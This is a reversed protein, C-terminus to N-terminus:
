SKRGAWKVRREVRRRVPLWINITTGKGAQSEAEIRGNHRQIIDYTIALGLGTGGEKTTVFPDFIYPLIHPNISTGTDSIKLYVEGNKPHYSTQVSLLGGDPMAEVANLCINLIVQKIQDRIMPISPLNEDPLFEFNIKNHRLHTNLLTQVELVLVNISGPKFDENVVPRYIERLRAILNTMRETEALMTRMDEQAQPSLSEEMKVLYLANQIAQLPNNLEHAVSAVIRGLAALKESQVLQARVSKEHELSAQLDAYIQAKEIAVAIQDAVTAMLQVDHDSFSDPFSNRIDLVGLCHNGTKLPIALESFTKPLQPDRVYNGALSVNRVVSAQFTKAVGGIIGEGSHYRQEGVQHTGESLDSGQSRVLDDTEPDVLFVQVHYYGFQEKLLLVVQRLMLDLDLSGFIDQSIRYLINVEQLSKQLTAFLKANQLALAAQNALAELRKMHDLNYFQPEFKSISFIAIVQDYAIVPVGIWSRTKVKGIFDLQTLNTLASQILLPKGTEIIESFEPIRAIDIQNNEYKEIAGVIEQSRVISAHGDNVLLISIKDFHVLRGVQIVLLDLVHDIDLTKNLNISIESLVEALERQERETRIIRAKEIAVAAQLGLITLLKEDDNTFVGPTASQVSLTGLNVQDTKVPAVLLSRITHQGDKIPIYRPDTLVDSVLITQGTALVLGAIGDGPKFNLKIGKQAKGAGAVAAPELSSEKEDLIHLTTREAKKILATAADAIQQLTTQLDITGALMQSIEFLAQSQELQKELQESTLSPLEMLPEM